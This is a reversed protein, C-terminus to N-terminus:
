AIGEGIQKPHFVEKVQRWTYESSSGGTQTRKYIFAAGDNAGRVALPAGVVMIDGDLAVSYGFGARHDVKLNDSQLWVGTVVSRKYMVVQGNHGVAIDSGSIAISVPDGKEALMEYFKGDFQSMVKVETDSTVGVTEGEIAAQPSCGNCDSDFLAQVLQADCYNGSPKTNPPSTVPKLTPKTNPPSTVPKLTPKTTPPSTVPKLTPKTTPPSIVSKLTTTPKQSNPLLQIVPSGIPKLTNSPPAEPPDVSSSDNNNRNQTAYMVGIIGAMGGIIFVLGVFVCRSHKKWWSQYQDASETSPQANEQERQEEVQVANYLPPEQVLTAELVEITDTTGQEGNSGNRVSSSSSLQSTRAASPAPRNSQRTSDVKKRSDKKDMTGKLYQPPIPAENADSIIHELGYRKAKSSAAADVLSHPMPADGDFMMEISNDANKSKAISDDFQSISIPADDGAMEEVYMDTDDGKGMSASDEDKSNM